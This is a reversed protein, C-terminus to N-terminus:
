AEMFILTLALIDTILLLGVAVYLKDELSM